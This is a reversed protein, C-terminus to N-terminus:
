EDETMAGSENKPRCGSCYVTYNRSETFEVSSARDPSYIKAGCDGCEGNFGPIRFYYPVNSGSTRRVIRKVRSLYERESEEEQRFIFSSTLLDLGCVVSSDSEGDTM